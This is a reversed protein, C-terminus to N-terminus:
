SPVGKSSGSELNLDAVNEEHNLVANKLVTFLEHDKQVRSHLVEIQKKSEELEVLANNLKEEAENLRKAASTRNRKGDVGKPLIEGTKPDVRGLYEQKTRPKKTEPDRYSTSKYAFINGTKQDTRHIITSM